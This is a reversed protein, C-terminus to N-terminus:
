LVWTAMIVNTTIPQVGGMSEAVRRGALVSRVSAMIQEPCAGRGSINKMLQLLVAFGFPCSFLNGLYIVYGTM